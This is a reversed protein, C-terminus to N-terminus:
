VILDNADISESVPRRRVPCSYIKKWGSGGFGTFFLMRKTDPYYETAIDTLYHNFGKEFSESLEDAQSTEQGVNKIKVPGDAPLLEGIANSTFRLTAELLLPHDVQSMGELAAASAGVDGRPEKLQLGLLSLGRTRTAEWQARSQIDADIGELIQNALTGRTSDDIKDALNGDFKDDKGDDKAQSFEIVVSGDELPIGIDGEGLQVADPEATDIVVNPIDLAQAADAM